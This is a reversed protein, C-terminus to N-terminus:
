FGVSVDDFTRHVTRIPAVQRVQRAVQRGAIEADNLAPEGGAHLQGGGRTGGRRGIRHGVPPEDVSFRDGTRGTVQPFVTLAYRTDLPVVSGGDAAAVPAVVFRLDERTRLTLATDMARRLGTLATAPDAGCHAKHELDSVTVFWDRGDDGTVYWHYDGFGVPAYTVATPTIGYAALGRSLTEDRVNEPLAKM